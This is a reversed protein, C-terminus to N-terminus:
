HKHSDVELITLGYLKAWIVRTTYPISEDNVLVTYRALTVASVTSPLLRASGSSSLRRVHSGGSGCSGANFPDSAMVTYNNNSADTWSVFLVQSVAVGTANALACRTNTVNADTLVVNGADFTVRVLSQPQSTSPTDNGMKKSLGVGLGIALTAVIAVFSLLASTRQWSAAAAEREKERGEWRTAAAKAGSGNATVRLVLQPSPSSSPPDEKVSTMEGSPSSM